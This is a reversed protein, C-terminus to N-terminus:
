DSDSSAGSTPGNYVEGLTLILRPRQAEVNSVKWRAGMWQVYRIAFFNENAFADAVISISNNVAINDNLYESGELRRAMKTIDGRYTRETIKDSHVGPSTEQPIGFGVKGCFKAM